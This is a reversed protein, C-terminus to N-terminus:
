LIYNISLQYYKHTGIKDALYAIALFKDIRIYFNWKINSM